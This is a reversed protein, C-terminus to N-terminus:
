LLSTYSGILSFQPLTYINIYIESGWGVPAWLLHEIFTKLAPRSGNPVGPHCGDRFNLCMGGSFLSPSVAAMDCRVFVCVAPATQRDGSRSALEVRFLILASKLHSTTVGHVKGAACHQIHFLWGALAAWNQRFLVSLILFGSTLDPYDLLFCFAWHINVGM